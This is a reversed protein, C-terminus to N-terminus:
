GGGTAARIARVTKEVKFRAIAEGIEVSRELDEVSVGNVEALGEKVRADYRVLEPDTAMLQVTSWYQDHYGDDDEVIGFESAIFAILDDNAYYEPIHHARADTWRENLADAVTQMGQRNSGSDGIFVIETFGHTHFSRAVDTLMAEFTEQRVSITGPYRMHGSPEDIDGEPVLKIVPACLADGLKRAIAECQPGIVFNHKGLVVFRGNPETGGTPIIITTTGSALADRVEMWTLEEIQVSGSAPVPRPEVIQEEYPIRQAAASGSLATALAVGMM